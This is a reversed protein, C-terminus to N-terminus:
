KQVSTIIIQVFKARIDIMHQQIDRHVEELMTIMYKRSNTGISRQENQFLNKCISPLIFNAILQNSNQVFGLHKVTVRTIKKSQIAGTGIIQGRLSNNFSSIIDLTNILFEATKKQNHVPLEYEVTQIFSDLM